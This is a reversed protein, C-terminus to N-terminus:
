DDSIWMEQTQHYKGSSLTQLCVPLCVDATSVRGLALAVFGRSSSQLHGAGPPYRRAPHSATGPSMTPTVSNPLCLHPAIYLSYPTM